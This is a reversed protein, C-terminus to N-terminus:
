KPRSLSTRSAANNTKEQADLSSTLLPSSRWLHELLFWQGVMVYILRLIVSAVATLRLPCFSISLFATANPYGGWVNVRDVVESAALPDKITCSGYKSVRKLRLVQSSDFLQGLIPQNKLEIPIGATNSFSLLEEKWRKTSSVKRATDQTLAEITPWHSYVSDQIRDWLWTRWNKIVARRNACGTIKYPIPM